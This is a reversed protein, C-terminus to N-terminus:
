LRKRGTYYPMASEAAICVDNYDQPQLNLGKFRKMGTLITAHNKGGLIKGINVSSLGKEKYKTYLIRSILAEALPINGRKRKSYIEEISVGLREQLFSYLRELDRAVQVRLAPDGGYWEGLYGKLRIDGGIMEKEDAIRQCVTLAEELDSRAEEFRQAASKLVGV